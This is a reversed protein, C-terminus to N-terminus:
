IPTGNFKKAFLKYIKAIESTNFLSNEGIADLAYQISLLWIFMLLLCFNTANFETPLKISISQLYGKIKKLANEFGYQYIFYCAFFILCLEVFLGFLLSIQIISETIPDLSVSTIDTTENSVNILDVNEEPRFLMKKVEIEGGSKQNYNGVISSGSPTHIITGEAEIVGTKGVKCSGKWSTNRYATAGAAGLSGYFAAKRAAQRAGAFMFVPTTSHFSRTGMIVKERNNGLVSIIYKNVLHSSYVLYNNYKM